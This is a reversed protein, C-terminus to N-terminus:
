SRTSSSSGSVQRSLFDSNLIWENRSVVDDIIVDLDKYATQLDTHAEIIPRMPNKLTEELKTEKVTLEDLERNTKSSKKLFKISEDM